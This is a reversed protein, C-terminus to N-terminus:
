GFWFILFLRAECLKGCLLKNEHLYVAVAVALNLLITVFHIVFHVNM